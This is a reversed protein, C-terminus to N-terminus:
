FTRKEKKKKWSWPAGAVAVVQSESLHDDVACLYTKFM